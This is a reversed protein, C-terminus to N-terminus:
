LTPIRLLQPSTADMQMSTFTRLFSHFDSCSSQDPLTRPLRSPNGPSSPFAARVRGSWDPAGRGSWDSGDPGSQGTRDLRVRGSWVSTLGAPADGELRLQPQPRADPAPHAPGGAAVGGHGAAGPLLLIGPVSGKPRSPRLGPSQAPQPGAAPAHLGGPVGRPGRDARQKRYSVDVSFQAAALDSLPIWGPLSSGSVWKTWEFLGPEVRMKIKTDQQMGTLINQATQICRLSPSCYVADIVTNSELLAEGVLRAQTTGFVTIPSDMDYDTRDGWLPLSPPMNLNSRVYRGQSDSCLSPWHKGFVVDMREGHRCIFLTRTPQRSHSASLRLVQMPHCILSLTPTDGPGSTEPRRSDFMGRNRSTRDAPVCSFFSHSGHLVWTDCEDAVSVYNEPLLGARGSALSSGFLWGEITSGQDVPSVFVHDGPVLELEDENEHNAFRIDRSFLVVLWDCGLQVEIGKALKELSPLRSSPFNYALTVHLKKKQPEVHVEAKRTAEAAFDAAFQKLVDAVQEEVFLGIFNSSTYLELPLPSPFRGRWRQVAAQLAECLGEVNHDSCMFFQCLTIHPFINHAKNKGCTVRSQQWFHALQNQLPGSPRLYLVFERPLPDDLFPDEVHSFLWDCAAQVSRGGTSALAKLARPRPFGMSLLVDLSSGCKISGPRNQRLRRPLIKSYFDEKAAM